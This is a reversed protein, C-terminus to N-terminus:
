MSLFVDFDNAVTCDRGSSEIFLVVPIVLAGSHVVYTCIDYFKMLNAHEMGVIYIYERTSHCTRVTGENVSAAPIDM